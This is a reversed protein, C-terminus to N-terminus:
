KGYTIKWKNDIINLVIDKGNIVIKKDCDRWEGKELFSIGLRRGPTPPVPYHTDIHTNLRGDRSWKIIENGM